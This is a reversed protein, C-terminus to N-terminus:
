PRRWWHRIAVVAVAVLSGILWLTGAAAMTIAGPDVWIALAWGIVAFPAGVTLAVRELRPMGDADTLWRM